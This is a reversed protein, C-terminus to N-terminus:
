ALNLFRKKDKEKKEVKPTTPIKQVRARDSPTLGFATELKSLEQGLTVMMRAEPNLVEYEQKAQNSQRITVGDREVSKTCQKWLAFLACYRALANRDLKSLVGIKDLMPAMREWEKAGLDTLWQPKNPRGQEPTEDDTKTKARWSGRAELVAKPTPKRGRM